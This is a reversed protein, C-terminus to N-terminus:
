GKSHAIMGERYRALTGPGWLYVVVAAIITLIVGLKVPDYTLGYDPVTCLNV